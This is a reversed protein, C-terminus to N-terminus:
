AVVGGIALIADRRRHHLTEVPRLAPARSIDSDKKLEELDTRLDVATQYRRTPEKALCRRVIRALEAPLTSDVEALSPPSHRLIATMISVATTGGFPRQGTALEYLIVGLSFIDSRHDVDRGEAQEPSMYAVTGVIRGEGTIQETALGTMDIGAPMVDHLK